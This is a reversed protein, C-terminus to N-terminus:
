PVSGVVTVTDAPKIVEPVSGDVTVTLPVIGADCTFPSPPNTFTLPVDVSAPLRITVPEATTLELPVVITAFGM